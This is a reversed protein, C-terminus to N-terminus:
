AILRALASYANNIDIPQSRWLQFSEAAQGVLMGFGDSINAVGQQKAWALFPTLSKGYVMDYAYITSAFIKKDIDPLGGALSASTANIVLDYKENLSIDSFGCGIVEGYAAYQESLKLAKSATRNAVTIQAPEQQLLMYLVGKAAGGAGLMLIHKNKVEWKLRETIDWVLGQGDTNDGLIAGDSQMALTNVAGALEARKTLVDAFKYAEEKFPVTVNMGKGGDAFFAKAAQEFCGIEVLKKEYSINQQTQKAFLAHIEPSKSQEIPNGVVCYRDPIDTM